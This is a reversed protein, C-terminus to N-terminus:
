WSKTIVILSQLYSHTYFLLVFCTLSLLLLFIFFFQSINGTLWAFSTAPLADEWLIVSGRKPILRIIVGESGMRPLSMTQFCDSGQSVPLPCNCPSFVTQRRTKCMFIAEIGSEAEFTLQQDDKEFLITAKGANSPVLGSLKSQATTGGSPLSM